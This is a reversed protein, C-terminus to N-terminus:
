NKHQTCGIRLNLNRTSRSTVITHNESTETPDPSKKRPSKKESRGVKGDLKYIRCGNTTCSEGYDTNLRWM